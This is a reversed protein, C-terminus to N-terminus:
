QHPKLLHKLDNISAVLLGRKKMFDILRSQKMTALLKRIVSTLYQLIKRQIRRKRESELSNELLLSTTQLLKQFTRTGLLFLQSVKMFNRQLKKWNRNNTCASPYYVQLLDNMKQLVKVRAIM